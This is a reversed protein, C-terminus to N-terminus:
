NSVFDFVQSNVNLGLFDALRNIEGIKDEKIFKQYTTEFLPANLNLIHQELSDQCFKVYDIYVNDATYGIAKAISSAVEETPRRIIVYKTNKPFLDKVKDLHLCLFPDKIGWIPYKEERTHIVIQYLALVNENFSMREHLKKLERDEFYGKENAHTPADFSEGMCVGLQHLVGAVASTGSRYCGLVVVCSM